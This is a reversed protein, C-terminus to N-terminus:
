ENNQYHLKHPNSKAGHTHTHSQFNCSLSTQRARIQAQTVASIILLKICYRGILQITDDLWSYLITWDATGVLWPTCPLQFVSWFDSGAFTKSSSDANRFVSLFSPPPPPPLFFIFLLRFLLPQRGPLRKSCLHNPITWNLGHTKTLSTKRNHCSHLLQNSINAFLGKINMMSIKAAYKGCNQHIFLDNIKKWAQTWKSM